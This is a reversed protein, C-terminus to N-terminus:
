YEEGGQAALGLDCAILFGRAREALPYRNVADWFADSHNPHVLHAIEHVLVYDLVWDPYRKLREAIRIVGTGSTCSGHRQQQRTSWSVSRLVPREPFYRRMLRRAREVLARDADVTTRRLYAAARERITELTVQVDRDSVRAPREVILRDGQIRWRYTRQLRGNIRVDLVLRAEGVAPEDPAAPLLAAAHPASAGDSLPTPALEAPADSAAPAPPVDFPLGLQGAPRSTRAGM